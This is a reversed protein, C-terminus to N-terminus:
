WSVDEYVSILDDSRQQWQWVDKLGYISSNNWLFIWPPDDHTLRAAQRALEARTADDFESAMQTVLADVAPNTYRNWNFTGTSAIAISYIEYADM